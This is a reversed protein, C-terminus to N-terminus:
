KQQDIVVFYLHSRDLRHRVKGPLICVGDKFRDNDLWNQFEENSAPETQYKKWSEPPKKERSIAPLTELGIFERWYRAGDNPTKIESPVSM